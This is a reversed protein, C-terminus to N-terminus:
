LIIIEFIISLGMADLSTFINIYINSFEKPKDLFHSGVEHLISEHEGHM